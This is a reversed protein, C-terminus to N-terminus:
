KYAAFQRAQNIEDKTLPKVDFMAQEFRQWEKGNSPNNRRRPRKARYNVKGDCDSYCISGGFFKVLRRGIAIWFANSTPYLLWGKCNDGRWHWTCYHGQEGDILRTGKPATVVIDAMQPIDVHGKAKAGDVRVAWAKGNGIEMKHPKLGALIGIVDAVDDIETDYSFKILANVGM